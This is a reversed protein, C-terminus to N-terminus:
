ETDDEGTGAAGYAAQCEIIEFEDCSAEQVCAWQSKIDGGQDSEYLCGQICSDFTPYAEISCDQVLNRCMDDCAQDIEDVTTACSLFLFAIM